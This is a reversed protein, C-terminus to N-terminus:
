WRWWWCWWRLSFSNTQVAGWIRGLEQRPPAEEGVAAVLQGHLLSLLEGVEEEVEAAHNELEGWRRRLGGGEEEAGGGRVRLWVRLVLRLRDPLAHVELGCEGGHVERGAERCGPSCYRLSCCEEGGGVVEEWCHDCLSSRHPSSLLHVLPESRLM